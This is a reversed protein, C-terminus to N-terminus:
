PTYITRDYALSCIEGFDDRVCWVSDDISNTQAAEEADEISDYKKDDPRPYELRQVTFM